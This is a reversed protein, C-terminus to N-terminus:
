DEKFHIPVISWEEPVPDGIEPEYGCGPKIWDPLEHWVLVDDKYIAYGGGQTAYLQKEFAEREKEEAEFHLALGNYFDCGAVGCGETSIELHYQLHQQPTLPPNRPCYYVITNDSMTESQHSSLPEGCHGNPCSEQEEIADMSHLQRLMENEANTM